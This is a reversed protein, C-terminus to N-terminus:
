SHSSATRKRQTLFFVAFSLAFVAAVLLYFPRAGVADYVVGGTLNGLFGAVSSVAAFFAQASAKLHAPALEYVYNLSSGILLGNGLGFFCCSVLMTPFSHAWLGLLVCELGMLLPPGMVLLRLPFRRRLRVMLLLFPIELLARAGLFIGYRVSPINADAMFYPLYTGECTSGTYLLFGIVMFSVYARNQFLEGLNLKQKEGKKPPRADPERAFLTLVIAPVTLLATLWFTSAVGVTPLLFSITFSGIMFLFSGVSRLLGYNLRLENSNRVLLNEAYTSMSGRFFYVLPVLCFFLATSYPLGAPILPILAFLGVGGVLVTILVKRLSGIRDSVMGWFSVSAISLISTLANLLGLQSATFGVEQLYITQYSGFSWSFWFISNVGTCILAQRAGYDLRSLISPM